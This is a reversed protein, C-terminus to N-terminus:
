EKKGSICSNPSENIYAEVRKHLFLWCKRLNIDHWMCQTIQPSLLLLKEVDNFKLWFIFFFWITVPSYIDIAVCFNEKWLFFHRLCCKNVVNLIHIPYQKNNNNYDSILSFCQESHLFQYAHLCSFSLSDM